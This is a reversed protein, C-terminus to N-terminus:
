NVFTAKVRKSRLFYPIWIIAAASARATAKAYELAFPEADQSFGLGALILPVLFGSIFLAIMVSPAHSKKQFFIAAAYFMFLILATDFLIATTYIGGFGARKMDEFMSLAPVLSVVSIVPGIVLGVAPFVLWGKIGALEPHEVEVRAATEATISEGSAALVYPILLSFLMLSIFSVLLTSNSIFTNVTEIKALNFRICLEPIRWYIALVLTGILYIMLYSKGKLHARTATIIIAIVVVILSLWSVFPLLMKNLEHM